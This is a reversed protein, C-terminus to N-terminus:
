DATQVVLAESDVGISFYVAADGQEPNENSFDYPMQDIFLWFRAIGRGDTPVSAFNPTYGGASAYSNALQFFSGKESDYFYACWEAQDPAFNGEEDFCEDAYATTPDAPAGPVDLTQVASFPLVLIGFGSTTAEVAINELPLPDDYDSPGMVMADVILYIGVNDELEFASSTALEVSVPNVSIVSNVPASLPDKMCGASLGALITATLGLSFRM